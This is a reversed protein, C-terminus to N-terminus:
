ELSLRFAVKEDGDAARFPGLNEFGVSEHLRISALNELHTESRVTSAGKQRAYDVCVKILVTAVGQRRYAPDVVLGSLWWHSADNKDQFVRCHGVLEGAKCAILFAENNPHAAGIAEGLKTARQEIQEDSLEFGWAGSAWVILHRSMMADAPTLAWIEMAEIMM